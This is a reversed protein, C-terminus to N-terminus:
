ERAVHGERTEGCRQMTPDDLQDLQIKETTILIWALGPRREINLGGSGSRVQVKRKVTGKM